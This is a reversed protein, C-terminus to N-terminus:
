IYDVNYILFVYFPSFDHSFAQTRLREDKKDTNDVFHVRDIGVSFKNSVFLLRCGELIM